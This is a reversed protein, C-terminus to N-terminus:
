HVQVDAESEEEERASAPLATELLKRLKRRARTLRTGVTAVPIGLRTSIEVYSCGEREKLAVVERAIPDLEAIAASLAADSVQAWKPLSTSEAPISLVEVGPDIPRRRRVSDIFLNRMIHLLWTRLSGYKYRDYKRLGRELTDQVLDQADAANRTLRGAQRLLESQLVGEGIDHIGPTPKRM